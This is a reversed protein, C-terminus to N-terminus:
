HGRNNTILLLFVAWRRNPSLPRHAERGIFRNVIMRCSYIVTHCSFKPLLTCVTKSTTKRDFLGWRCIAKLLSSFYVNRVFRETSTPSLSHLHILCRFTSIQRSVCLNAQKLLSPTSIARSLVRFAKFFLLYAWESTKDLSIGRLLLFLCASIAQRIGIWISGRRLNARGARM